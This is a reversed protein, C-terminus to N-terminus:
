RESARVLPLREASEPLIRGMAADAMCQENSSSTPASRKRMGCRSRPAPAQFTIAAYQTSVDNIREDGGIDRRVDVRIQM